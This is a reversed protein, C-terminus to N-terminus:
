RGADSVRLLAACPKAANSNGYRSRPAHSASNVGTGQTSRCLGLGWAELHPEPILTRLTAPRGKGARVATAGAYRMLCGQDGSFAGGEVAVVFPTSAFRSVDGWSLPYNQKENEDHVEILRNNELIAQFTDTTWTVTTDDGEGHHILGVAHLLEHAVAIEAYPVSPVIGEPTWVNVPPFTALDAFVIRDVYRPTARGAGFTGNRFTAGGTAEIRVFDEPLSPGKLIVAHQDGIHPTQPSRNANVVRKLSPEPALRVVTIGSVQKFRRIGALTADGLQNHVFLEKVRPNTRVFGNESMFGRYEEFLTLGDGRFGDGVPENELDDSDLAGADANQKKWAAAIRSGLTTKPLRLGTEARDGALHGVITRGDDLTATVRVTGSAGWDFCSVLATAQSLKGEATHGRQGDAGDLLLRSRRPEFALDFSDKAQGAAPFNMCIGPERSTGDLTFTFRVAQRRAPKGKADVLRATVAIDGGAHQEDTGATPLWTDYNEPPDIVLDVPEGSAPEFQWTRSGQLPWSLHFKDLEKQSYKAQPQSPDFAFPRSDTLALGTEPLAYWAVYWPGFNITSTTQDDREQRKGVSDVTFGFIRARSLPYDFSWRYKGKEVDVTLTVKADITDTGEHVARIHWNTFEEEARLFQIHLRGRGSWTPQTRSDGERVLHFDGSLRAGWQRGTWYGPVIEHPLRFSDDSQLSVRAFFEPVDAFRAPSEAASLPLLAVILLLPALAFHRPVNPRSPQEM